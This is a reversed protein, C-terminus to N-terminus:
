ARESMLSNGTQLLIEDYDIYQEYHGLAVNLRGKDKVNLKPTYSHIKGMTDHATYPCYLIPADQSFYTIMDRLNESLDYKEARGCIILASENPEGLDNRRKFENLFGLVIDDRTSHCLYLTRSPKEKVNVLFEALSTTVLNIDEVTYHQFLKDQGSIFEAQLLRTLDALAPCGLYPRDPICGLLPLDWHHRMARGLYDKTQEYKEPLVKNIIVGAVEVNHKECLSRNLELEDFTSGLGGNAVLVMKADLLSAVQANCAGVISGVACHGTGECLVVENRGSISSYAEKIAELQGDHSIKGDIYNKTYGNPILVPSMHRYDCRHMDFHEKMLAVDKDVRLDGQLVNSHVTVQKQGVPKMFGVSNPFRKKLGAMLALCTTTKGVHERTAAVYIPRGKDNPSNTATSAATSKMRHTFINTTTNRSVNNNRCRAVVHTHHRILSKSTM